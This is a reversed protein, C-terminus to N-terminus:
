IWCHSLISVELKQHHQRVPLSASNQFIDEDEQYPDVIEVGPQNYDDDRAPSYTVGIGEGTHLKSSASFKSSYFKNEM